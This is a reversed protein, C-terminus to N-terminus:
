LGFSFNGSQSSSSNKGYNLVTPNGLIQALTQYPMLQLQQQSGMANMGQLASDLNYQSGFQAMNGAQNYANNMIGQSGQAFAQQMGQMGLGQAVGMRGGGMGGSQISQNTIGPMLQNNFQNQLGQQLMNINGQVMENNPHSMQMIQDAFPNAGIQRQYSAMMNSDAQGLGNQLIDPTAQGWMQSLYKLQTPDIMAGSSGKSKSQSKGGGVSM